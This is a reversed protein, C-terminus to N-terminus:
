SPSYSSILNAGVTAKSISDVTNHCDLAMSLLQLYVFFHVECVFIDSDIKTHQHSIYMLKVNYYETSFHMWKDFFMIQSFVEHISIYITILFQHCVSSTYSFCHTSFIVRHVSIGVFLDYFISWKKIFMKYVHYFLPARHRITWNPQHIKHFPYNNIQSPVITNEKRNKRTQTWNADFNNPKVEEKKITHAIKSYFKPAHGDFTSRYDFRSAVGNESTLELSVKSLLISISLIRNRKLLDFRILIVAHM